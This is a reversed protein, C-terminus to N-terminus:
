TAPLVVMFPAATASTAPRDGSTFLMGILEGAVAVAPEIGASAELLGALTAVTVNLTTTFEVTALPVTIEFWPKTEAGPLPITSMGDSSGLVVTGLSGVRLMAPFRGKSYASFFTASIL